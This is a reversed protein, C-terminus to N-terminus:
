KFLEPAAYIALGSLVTFFWLAPGLSSRKKGDWWNAILQCVIGWVTLSTIAIVIYLRVM